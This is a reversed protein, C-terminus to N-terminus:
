HFHGMSSGPVNGHLSCITGDTTQFSSTRKTTLKHVLSSSVKRHIVQHDHHMGIRHRIDVDDDVNTCGNRPNLKYPSHQWRTEHKENKQECSRSAIAFQRARRISLVYSSTYSVNRTILVLCSARRRLYNKENSTRPSASHLHTM